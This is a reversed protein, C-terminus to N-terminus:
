EHKAANESIKASIREIAWVTLLGTLILAVAFLVEFTLTDPIFREYGTIISAGNADEMPVGNKSLFIPNKWPWLISLSGFVFGTLLSLTIDKFKKFIWSLAGSFVPLGIIIGVAFPVIIMYDLKIIASMILRYNGMLILVYSGSLGPLITSIIFVIGCLILYFFNSNESSPNLFLITLALAAGFIFSIIVKLNLLKEIYKAIYFVSAFVLGFFYSWILVYFNKFLYDLLVSFYYLSTGIGLLVTILFIIDTHQLFQLFKGTFLLKLAKFNFNKIAHILREFIGGLLAITGGSVGPIISAAGISLGKM